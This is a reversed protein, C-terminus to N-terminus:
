CGRWSGVPTETMSRRLACPARNLHVDFVSLFIGVRCVRESGLLRCEELAAARGAVFASSALALAAAVVISSPRPM